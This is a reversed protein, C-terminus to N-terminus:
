RYRKVEFRYLEYKGGPPIGAKERAISIQDEITDVGELNPLLLGTKHGSKVIVGYKKPDLEELSEVPEPPMLVDVSYDLLPLEEEKIPPFRPDSLGASLVNKVIEEAISGQTPEITGICGRLSGKKKLSVFVGGKEKLKEPLDSLDPTIGEKVYKELAQRALKVYPSVTEKKQVFEGTRFLAVLYGVGFPGEYSLIEPKVEYGDLSGLAMIIPRLGCEAANNVLEAKLNIIEDVRYGELLEKLKLDFEKGAPHYGAPAGEQLCHSLDGSAIVAVRRNSKLAAEQLAKGFTFLDPFSLLGMTIHVFPVSIHEQLFYMPVLAGHDLELSIEYDDAREEDLEVVPINAEGAEEIVSKVLMQDNEASIRVQPVGFQALSGALKKASTVAIGNQFVPGHPSIIVVTDPRTEKVERVLVKMAKITKDVKKLEERGVDPIIIPPHPAIAACVINSM